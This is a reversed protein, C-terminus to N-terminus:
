VRPMLVRCADAGSMAPFTDCCQGAVVAARTGASICVRHPPGHFSRRDQTRICLCLPEAPLARLAVLALLNSGVACVDYRQVKPVSANLKGHRVYPGFKGVALTVPQQDAPHLGLPTAPKLLALAEALSPLEDRCHAHSMQGPVAAEM